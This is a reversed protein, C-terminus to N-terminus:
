ASRPIRTRCAPSEHIAGVYGDYPRADSTRGRAGWGGADNGYPGVGEVAQPHM